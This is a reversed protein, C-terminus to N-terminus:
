EGASTAIRYGSVALNYNALAEVYGDAAQQYLTQAQLLDSLPITGARYYDTNLRLNERSQGVSRQALFLEKWAEEVGNWQNQMSILLLESNDELEEEAIRQAYKLRKIAHSGGWWDSLPVTVTAYIAGLNKREDLMNHTIFGAGVAVTPMHKGTEIRKDLKKAEVSKQMLRYEPSSLLAAEHDARLGAPFEPVSEFDVKEDVLVSDLGIYQALLSLSTSLLNEAKLRSVAVENQKLQVQLMDNPMKVGAGVAVTVDSLLRNLMTDLADVTRLKNQLMVVNWYYKETTLRVEDGSQEYQLRSVDVGVRAKKNGNVIQGGAFVPQVASVMAVNGSKIYQFPLMGMINLDIFHRNMDYIVGSAGVSPFYSTFMERKKQVAQQEALYASHMRVNNELALSVCDELGMAREQAMAPVASLCVAALSATILNKM